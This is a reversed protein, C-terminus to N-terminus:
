QTHFLTQSYSRGDHVAWFQQNQIFRYVAKIRKSDFFDSCQKFSQSMFVSYCNGRINAGDKCIDDRSIPTVDKIKAWKVFSQLKTEKPFNYSLSLLQELDKKHDKHEYYSFDQDKGTLYKSINTTTNNDLDQTYSITELGEHSIEIKANKSPLINYTNNNEYTKGNITIKSDLPAVHISVTATRFSGIIALVILLIIALLDFILFGLIFKNGKIKQWLQNM